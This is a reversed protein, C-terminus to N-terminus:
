LNCDEGDSGPQRLFWQHIREEDFRLHKGIKRHPLPDQPRRVLKYIQHRSMDFIQAVKEIKLYQRAM